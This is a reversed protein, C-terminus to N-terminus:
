SLGMVDARLQEVIGNIRASDVVKHGDQDQVYFVDFAHAKETALKAFTINLRLGALTKAIQYGLGVRDDAQVEIVTANPSAENDLHVRPPFSLRHSKAAPQHGGAHRKLYEEISVQGTIVKNLLKEVRPYDEQHLRYSGGQDGIQFVDFVVGDDRTNLQASLINLNFASLTGSIQAFLGPHDRTVLNLTTYAKEPHNEWELVVDSRELKQVLRAHLAIQAAPVYLAYKEPLLQFHNRIAEVAIEDRLLEIVQQRVNEVEAHASPSVENSFMLRDYAKYYLEWLLYDKWETWVGPAVAVADAYTMLLLMNLVDLRDVTRVFEEITHPDELNRRQSVHGMLLHHRVLTQVKESEDPDFGLRSLAKGVLQAGRASHGRGLGKGIDHMLLAFYLTSSDHIESFIRQYQRHRPEEGIAIQDLIDLARLTHEDTTYKHYLDHQALYTLRGFEPLVRGLYGLEHMQRIPGAVRGKNRLIARFDAGLSSTAFASQSAQQLSQRLAVRASDDLAGGQSQQYRFHQMWKEPRPSDALTLGGIGAKARKKALSVKFYGQGPWKPKRQTERQCRLMLTELAQSVRRARIYYHKLFAESDKQFRNGRFGFHDVVQGLLAHSLTDNRRGTLFHLENRLRLLFEYASLTKKWDDPSVEDEALVQSLTQQPYLARVIWGACHFDRLGGKAEKVNPEQVFATGGQSAHREEVSQFLREQFNRRHKQIASRMQRAFDDFLQPDGTILRADLMSVQSVLDERAIHLADKISRVSHGVQFGMDWLLCLMKQVMLNEAESQRGKKLFMVDVDSYPALEGRGYGGLAVIATGESGSTKTQLKLVAQYSWVVLQDMLQSRFSVVEQGGLGTRHRMKLRQMEARHLQRGFDLLEAIDTPPSPVTLFSFSNRRTPKSMSGGPFIDDAIKPQLLSFALGM